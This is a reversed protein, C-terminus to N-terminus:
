PNSEVAKQVLASDLYARVQVIVGREDFRMVWAYRQPYPMGVIANKTGLRRSHSFFIRVMRACRM